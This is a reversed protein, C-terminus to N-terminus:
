ARWLVGLELEKKAYAVSREMHDKQQYQLAAAYPEPTPRGAIDEIVM